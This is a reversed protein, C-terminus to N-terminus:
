CASTITVKANAADLRLVTRFEKEALDPSAERDCYLNGLNNHTQTSGPKLKLAKQFATAAGAFDQQDGEIMGLLNYAEVSSPNSGSPRSPRPRQKM